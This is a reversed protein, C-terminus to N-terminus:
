LKYLVRGPTHAVTLWERKTLFKYDYHEYNNCKSCSNLMNKKRPNPNPKKNFYHTTHFTQGIKGKLPFPTHLSKKMALLKYKM